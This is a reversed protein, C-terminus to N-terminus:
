SLGNIWWWGWVVDCRAGVAGIVLWNRRLIFVIWIVCWKCGCWVCLMVFVFFVLGVCLDFLFFFIVGVFWVVVCVVSCFVGVFFFVIGVFNVFFFIVGLVSFVGFVGFIVDVFMVFFGWDFVFDFLCCVVGFFGLFVVDYIMFWRLYSVCGGVGFGNFLIFFGFNFVSVVVVIFGGVFLNFINLFMSLVNDGVVNFFILILFLFDVDFIILSYEIIVLCVFVIWCNFDFILWRCVCNCVWVIVGIGVNCWIGDVVDLNVDRM